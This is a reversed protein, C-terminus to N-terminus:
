AADRPRRTSPRRRRAHAPRDPLRRASLAPCEAADDQAACFDSERCAGPAQREDLSHCVRARPFRHSAHECPAAACWTGRIWSRHGANKPTTAVGLVVYPMAAGGGDGAGSSVGPPTAAGPLFPGAAGNAGSANMKRVVAPTSAGHQRKLLVDDSMLAVSSAEDPYKLSTQVLDPTDDAELVSTASYYPAQSLLPGISTVSAYLVYLGVVVLMKITGSGLPRVGGRSPAQASASTDAGRRM